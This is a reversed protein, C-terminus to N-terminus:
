KGNKTEEKKTTDNTKKKDVIKVSADESPIERPLKKFKLDNKM